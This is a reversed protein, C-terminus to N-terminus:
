WFIQLCPCYAQEEWMTNWNAQIFCCKLATHNVKWMPFLAKYTIFRCPVHNRLPKRVRMQYNDLIEEFIHVQMRWISVRPANGKPNITAAEMAKAMSFAETYTLM